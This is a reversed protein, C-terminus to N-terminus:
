AMLPLDQDNVEGGVPKRRRRLMAVAPGALLGALALSGPEPNATVALDFGSGSFGNNLTDISFHFTGTSHYAISGGGGNLGGFLLENFSIQNVAYSPNSSPAPNAGNFVDDLLAVNGSIKFDMPGIQKGSDGPDVGNDGLKNTINVTFFYEASGGSAITNFHITFPQQLTFVDLNLTVQNPNAAGSGQYDNNNVASGTATFSSSTLDGNGGPSTNAGASIGSIFDAHASSAVCVVVLCIVATLIRTRM